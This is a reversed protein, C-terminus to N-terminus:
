GAVRSQAWRLLLFIYVSWALFWLYWSKGFLFAKWVREPNRESHHQMKNGTLLITFDSFFPNSEIILTFVFAYVLFAARLPTLLLGAFLFWSMAPGAMYFITRKRRNGTYAAAVFVHPVPRRGLRLGYVKLGLVYAALVHGLEHVGLLLLWVLLTWLYLM